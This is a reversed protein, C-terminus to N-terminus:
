LLNLFDKIKESLKKTVESFNKEFDEHGTNSGVIDTIGKIALMPTQTLMSVWAVGAAEMERVSCGHKLIIGTDTQNEDFSDGSCVRGPKLSLKDTIREFNASDYGGIGYETYGPIPIRRGYFYIKQSVYTDGIKAGNEAVGGATGISIVLDPHFHKIGLYAALTAPQTGVNQVKHMPDEGNLILFVDLNKYKGTYGQMPLNSFSHSSKKLDLTNIIPSAETDMAVALLVKKMHHQSLHTQDVAEHAQVPTMYLSVSLLLLISTFLQNMKLGLIFNISLNIAFLSRAKDM